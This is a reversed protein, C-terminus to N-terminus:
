VGWHRACDARSAVHVVIEEFEWNGDWIYEGHYKGVRRGMGWKPKLSTTWKMFLNGGPAPDRLLTLEGQKGVESGVEFRCGRKLGSIDWSRREGEKPAADPGRRERLGQPTVLKNVAIATELVSFGKVIHSIIGNESWSLCGRTSPDTLELCMEVMIVMAGSETTDKLLDIWTHESKRLIVIKEDDSETVWFASLKGDNGVGTERLANLCTIVARGLDMRWEPHSKYLERFASPKESSLSKYYNEKCGRDSWLFGVANLYDRMTKTSLIEILRRRRANETCASVEVGLWHELAQPNRRDPEKEWKELLAEKWTQGNNLKYGMGVMGSVGMAGIQFNTTQTHLDRSPRVTGPERLCSLNKYREKFLLETGVCHPNSQLRHTCTGGGILLTEEGNFYRNVMGIHTSVVDWKDQSSIWHCLTENPLLLRKEALMAPWPLISGNGLSYELIGEPRSKSSTGWLPGWVDALIAVRTSLYLRDGVGNSGDSLREKPELQFVWVQKGRLFGDLCRLSRRRMTIHSGQQEPALPVDRPPIFPGTVDFCDKTMSLHDEDFRSAHAGSYSLVALDLTHVARRWLIEPMPGQYGKFDDGLLGLFGLFRECAKNLRLVPKTTHWTNPETSVLDNATSSFEQALQEVSSNEVLALIAVEPRDNNIALLNFCDGSFGNSKLHSLNAMVSSLVEQCDLLHFRIYDSSFEEVDPGEQRAVTVGYAKAASREYVANELNRLKLFHHKPDVLRDDPDLGPPLIDDDIISKGESREEVSISSSFSSVRTSYLRPSPPGYWQPASILSWTAEASAGPIVQFSNAPKDPNIAELGACELTAMAKPAVECDDEDASKADAGEELLQEVIVDSGGAAAYFLPTKGHKNTMNADAGALLLQKVVVDYEGAAAYFLPTKGHKNTMNADAGALLLQKVVVDYGSAAAYFLPTSGDRTAAKPNAGAELLRRVIVDYGGAASISLATRGARDAARIDAGVELLQDVVAVHGGDAAIHLPTLEGSTPANVDVDAEILQKVITQRGGAAAHHLLTWGDINIMRANAGGKLLKEVVADYGRLVAPFLPTWGDENAVKADAGAELLRIVITEHGGYAADFLPTWGDWDAAKADAGAELLQEVITDYGGSVAYSLPTRGDKNTAKVDTGAGLLRKVVAKHGGHAADFLATCGDRDVAEADAGAELLQEVITDHGGGAAYSLPTRGDKNAVKADAGAGLLRKVIVDHGSAAAFFLPTRGDRDFVNADAGAELLQKVTEQQGDHAADFLPTQGERSAVKAGAGAESQKVAEQQRDRTASQLPENGRAEEGQWYLKLLFMCEDAIRGLKKVKVNHEVTYIKGFNIRSTPGLKLEPSDPIVRLPKKTLLESPLTGPYNDTYIVAHDEQSTRKM